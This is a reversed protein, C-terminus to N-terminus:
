EEANKKDDYFFIFIVALFATGCCVCIDAVNFIAFSHGWFIFHLMDTVKGYLVRDILNGVAGAAIVTLAFKTGKHSDKPLTIYYVIEGALIALTLVVFFWRAGSLMSFAAGENEVYTIYFFDKIVPISTNIKMNVSVADKTIRDALVLMAFFLINIWLM